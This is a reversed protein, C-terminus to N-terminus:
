LEDFLDNWAYPSFLRYKAEATTMEAARAAGGCKRNFDLQVAKHNTFVVTLGDRKLFTAEAAKYSRCIRAILSTAPVHLYNEEDKDHCEKLLRAIILRYARRCNRLADVVAESAMNMPNEDDDEEGETTILFTSLPQADTSEDYPMMEGGLMQRHAIAASAIDIARDAITELDTFTWNSTTLSCLRARETAWEVAANITIIGRRICIDLLTNLYGAEHGCCEFLTRMLAFEGISSSSGLFRLPDSYREILATFASPINSTIKLIVQLLISSRWIDNSADQAAMPDDEMAACHANFDISLAELASAELTQEELWELVDDSSERMEIKQLCSEFVASLHENSAATIIPMSDAPLQAHWSEPLAAVIDERVASRAIKDICMKCFLLRSGEDGDEQVSELWTEWHPWVLKTNVLHKSFWQSTERVSVLDLESVANFLLHVGYGLTSLFSPTKKCGELLLRFVSATNTPTVPVTVLSQLITEVMLPELDLSNTVGAVKQVALMHNCMLDVTGVYTGDEEIIPDFFYRLDRYHEAIMSRDAYSLELLNAVSESSDREFLPFVPCLWASITSGDGYSSTDSLITVLETIINEGIAVENVRASEDVKTGSLEEALADKVKRWSMLSYQLSDLYTDTDNLHGEIVDLAAQMTTYLNDWCASEEPGYSLAGSAKASIENGEADVPVARAHYVSNTGKTDFPSKYDKLATEYFSKLKNLLSNGATEVIWPTTSAMLYVLNHVGLPVGAVGNCQETAATLMSDVLAAMSGKGSAPLVGCCGLTALSRLILKIRLVDSKRAHELLVDQLKEVVLVTFDCEKRFMIGLVTSLMSCQIPLCSMVKVFIASIEEPFVNIDGVEVFIDALQQINEYLGDYEEETMSTFDGMKAIIQQALAVQPEVEPKVKEIM